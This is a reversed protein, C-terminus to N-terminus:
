RLASEHAVHTFANIKPQLEDIRRLSSEVLERATLEGARVLEALETAPRFMLQNVSM